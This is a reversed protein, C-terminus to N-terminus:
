QASGMTWQLVLRYYRSFFQVFGESESFLASPPEDGSGMIVLVQKEDVIFIGSMDHPPICDRQMPVSATRISISPNRDGEWRDCIVEVVIDPSLGLLLEAIGESLLYWHAILRVEKRVPTILDVLRDIIHEKGYISWILEQQTRDEKM